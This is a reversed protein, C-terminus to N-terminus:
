VPYTSTYILPTYTLVNVSPFDKPYNASSKLVYLVADILHLYFFLM